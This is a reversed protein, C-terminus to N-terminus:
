REGGLRLLGTSRPGVERLREPNVLRGAELTVVRSCMRRSLNESGLGILLARGLTRAEDLWDVFVRMAADDLPDFPRDLVVLDADTSLAAALGVRRALGPSLGALARTGDLGARGIVDDLPPRSAPAGARGRADRILALYEAITARTDHPPADLLAVRAQAARRHTAVDLGALEVRGSTPALVGAAVRLLTTTGSGNTGTVGVVEGPAVDLDAGHLAQVAGFRRTVRVLRLVPTM